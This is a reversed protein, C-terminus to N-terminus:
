PSWINFGIGYLRISQLSITSKIVVLLVWDYSPKHPRVFFLPGSSGKKTNEKKSQFSIKTGEENRSSDFKITFCKLVSVLHSLRLSNM